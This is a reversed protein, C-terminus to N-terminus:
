RALRERDVLMFKIQAEAVVKGEVTAKTNVQGTRARVKVAEAELVLQDGPIVAKRLKVGDIALLVAIKSTGKLRRLLLVGALQAMAEIELVGPMIPLGPFHGQFFEENFTVNKIGVARKEGELKLVRDVLLMPYRHPLVEQIARIDLYEKTLDEENKKLEEAMKKVLMINQSHGSRIGVIEGEIDAGLLALDGILDLIKHRAFEEPYRLSNQLIAEKGVVLTNAYSAGLGLGM